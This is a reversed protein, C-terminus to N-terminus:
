IKPPQFISFPPLAPTQIMEHSNMVPQSYSIPEALNITLAADDLHSFEELNEMMPAATPQGSRYVLDEVLFHVLLCGAVVWLLILITSPLTPHSLDNM